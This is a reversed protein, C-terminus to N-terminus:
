LHFYAGSHSILWGRRNSSSEKNRGHYLCGLCVRYITNWHRIWPHTHSLPGIVGGGKSHPHRWASLTWPPPPAQSHRWGGGKLFDQIRAQLPNLSVIPPTFETLKHPIIWLQYHHGSKSWQWSSYWGLTVHTCTLQSTCHYDFVWCKNLMPLVIRVRFFSCSDFDGEKVTASGPPPPGPPGSGGGKQAM